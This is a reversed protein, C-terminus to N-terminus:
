LLDKIFFKQNKISLMGIGDLINNLFSQLHPLNVYYIKMYNKGFARKCFLRPKNPIPLQINQFKAKKLPFLEDLFYNEKPWTQQSVNTQKADNDNITFKFMDIFVANNQKNIIKFGFFMPTIIYDDKIEDIMKDINNNNAIYGFDFDDDWPIIGQHRMVGLLTGAHAWYIINYKKFLLIIKKIFIIMEKHHNGYKNKWFTLSTALKTYKYNFLKYSICIILITLLIVIYINNM